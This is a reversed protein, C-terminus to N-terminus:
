RRANPRPTRRNSGDPDGSESEREDDTKSDSHKLIDLFVMEIKEATIVGRRPKERHPTMVGSFISIM